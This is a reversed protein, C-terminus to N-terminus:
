AEQSDLNQSGLLDHFPSNSILLKRARVIVPSLM